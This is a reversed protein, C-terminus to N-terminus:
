NFLLEAEYEHANHSTISICSIDKGVMEGGVSCFQKLWIQKQFLTEM